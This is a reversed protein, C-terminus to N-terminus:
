RIDVAGVANNVNNIGYDQRALREEFGCLARKASAQRVRRVVDVWIKPQHRQALM